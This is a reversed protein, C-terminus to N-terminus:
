RVGQPRRKLIRGELACLEDSLHAREREVFDHVAENILPLYLEHASYTRRPLFGRGHKHAGGGAGAEFRRWGEKIALEIGAYSCVEFHLGPPAEDCGWYRGYLVGDQEFNLAGGLPSREGERYAFILVLSEALERGIWLFFDENLYRQGYFYRDITDNYFRFMESMLQDHIAEGRYVVTYIGSEHLRRRERRIQNRRKSSFCGLFDEFSQYGENVWQFQVTERVALEQEEFFIREDERVFLWHVGSVPEHAVLARTAELLAGRLQEENACPAFLLRPGTVPSFPVATVLKPYYPFRLRRAAEAWSHDFIFEGQSHLKLYSPTAAVLEEEEWLTIYRPIWGSEEGVCHCRELGYLFAHRLFPSGREGLLADWQAAQLQSLSELVKLTYGSVEGLEM